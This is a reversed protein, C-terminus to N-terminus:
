EEELQPTCIDCNESREGHQCFTFEEFDPEEIKIGTVPTFPSEVAVLSDIHGAYYQRCFGCYMYRETDKWVPSM